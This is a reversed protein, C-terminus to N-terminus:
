RGKGDAKSHGKRRSSTAPGHQEGDGTRKFSSGEQPTHDKRIEKRQRKRERENKGM